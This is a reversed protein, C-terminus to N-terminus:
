GKLMGRVSTTVRAKVNLFSDFTTERRNDCYTLEILLVM